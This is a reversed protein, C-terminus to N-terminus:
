TVQPHRNNCVFTRLNLSKPRLFKRLIVSWLTKVSFDAKRKRVRASNRLPVDRARPMLASRHKKKREKKKKERFSETASRCRPHACFCWRWNKVPSFRAWHSIQVALRIVSTRLCCLLPSQFDDRPSKGIRTSFFRFNPAAGGEISTRRGKIDKRRNKRGEKRAREGTLKREGEDSAIADAVRSVNPISELPVFLLSGHDLAARM